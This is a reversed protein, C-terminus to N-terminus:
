AAAGRGRAAGRAECQQREIGGGVARRGQHDARRPGDGDRRGCSYEARGDDQARCSAGNGGSACEGAGAAASRPVSPLDVSLCTGIRRVPALDIGIFCTGRGAREQGDGKRIETLVGSDPAPLELVVKDTEVDVLNEDRRVPDGAKKHWNVLTAEAVSEPLVPVKVEMRM